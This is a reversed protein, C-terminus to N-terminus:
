FKIFKWQKKGYGSKDKELINVHIRGDSTEALKQIKINFLRSIECAAEEYLLKRVIPYVTIELRRPRFDM